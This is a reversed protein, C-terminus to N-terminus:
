WQGRLVLGGGDAAVLPAVRMGSTKATRPAALAYILTSAGVAGAAVFSWAAANGFTAQDRIASQLAQCSASPTAGCAASPGIKVIAAHMSTVDSAKANSVGAFVAGVIVGAGTLAAGTFILPKSAGGPGANGGGPPVVSKVLAVTVEQSAGQAVQVSARGTEYEGLRATVTHAGPEVFVEDALPAIGVARDDVAVEAGPVSVKVKLAGVRARAQAFRQQLRDKLSPKSSLPFERVAYALHEAAERFQGVEIECDGLNAAVDFSRRLDWAKQFQAEAEVWRSQKYLAAGQEFLERAQDTAGAQTQALAPQAYTLLGALVAASARRSMISIV